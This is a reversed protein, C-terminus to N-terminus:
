RNMDLTTLLRLFLSSFYSMPTCRLITRSCLLGDAPVSLLYIDMLNVVRELDALLSVAGQRLRENGIDPWLVPDEPKFM